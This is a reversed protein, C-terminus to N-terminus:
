DKHRGIFYTLKKRYRYIKGLTGKQFYANIRFRYEEFAYSFDLERNAILIDKQEPNLLSFILKETDETTLVPAETIPKLQGQIRIIPPLATIIHLDSAKKQITEALYQNINM